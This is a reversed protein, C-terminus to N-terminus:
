SLTWGKNTAIAKEDDSLTALHTAGLKLKGQSSTPTVGNGTFDYLGNLINILSQHSLATLKDVCYSGNWSSKLNIFGGFDVLTTNNSSGFPSGYSSIILSDARLSSLSTLKSCGGFMNSMDNVKSTDWNSLDINALVYCNYFMYDMKNVKSTDWNSIGYVSILKECNYFMNSMVVVKSTDWNSLDLSTLSTCYNFMYTMTTVNSVDWGSLDVFMLRKCQSFMSQMNTVKSTDIPPVYNIGSNSFADTMNTPCPFNPKDELWHPIYVLDVNADEPFKYYERLTM